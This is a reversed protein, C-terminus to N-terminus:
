AVFRIRLREDTFKADKVSLGRLSNPLIMNRRQSGVRVTLEDGNKTLSVDSKEAFPLNLALVCCNDERSISQVCHNCFVETPDRDEYLADALRRLKEAGMIEEQMLPASLIPLPAFSDEIIGYYRRQRERWSRLCPNETDQPILRNCIVLDTAYGYLNFYTFARQAERIVMNEPNVVLRMSAVKPDSLLAHTRGLQAYLKEVAHFVKDEPMPLGMVRRILPRTVTAATRGIPFLKEMWWKLVEPFSLLRLTEATPACDIILVDYDGRDHYRTVYLLNALEEMGPLLAFEEAMIKDAGQWMMVSAMWSQIERWHLDVEHGIDPEQAWLRDALEVPEGSLPVNFADALSHAADASLVITRYGLRACRVATAAAITTKGVGGKGTCLLVRM